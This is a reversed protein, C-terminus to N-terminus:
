GKEEEREGEKYRRRRRRRSCDLGVVTENGVGPWYQNAHWTPRWQAWFMFTSTTTVQPLLSPTRTATERGALGERHGFPPPSPRHAM